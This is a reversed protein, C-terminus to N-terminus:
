QCLVWTSIDIRICITGTACFNILYGSVCYGSFGGGLGEWQYTPVQLVEWRIGSAWRNTRGNNTRGTIPAEEPEGRLDEM